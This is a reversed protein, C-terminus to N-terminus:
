TTKRVKRTKKRVYVRNIPCKSSGTSHIGESECNNCNPLNSCPFSHDPSLCTACLPIGTCGSGTKKCNRVRCITCIDNRINFHFAKDRRLFNGNQLITDTNAFDNAHELTNFTVQIANPFKNPLHDRSVIHVHEITNGVLTNLKNKLNNALTVRTVGRSFGHFHNSDVNKIHITRANTSTANNSTGHRVTPIPGTNLKLQNDALLKPLRRDSLAKEVMEKNSFSITAIYSAPSHVHLRLVVYGYGILDVKFDALCFFGPTTRLCVKEIHEVRITNASRKVM